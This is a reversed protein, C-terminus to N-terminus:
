KGHQLANNYFVRAKIHEIKNIKCATFYAPIFENWDIWGKQFLHCIWDDESLSEQEISYHGNDYDMNGSEDVRWKGFEYCVEMDQPTYRTQVPEDSLKPKKM